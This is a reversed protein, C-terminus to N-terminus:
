SNQFLIETPMNDRRSFSRKKHNSDLWGLDSWTSLPRLGSTSKLIWFALGGQTKDAQLTSLKLQPRKGKWIFKSVFSQLKDLYELPPALSNMSYFNFSPLIDM